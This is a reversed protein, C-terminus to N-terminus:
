GPNGAASDILFVSTRATKSHTITTISRDLHITVEIDQATFILKNEKFTHLCRIGQNPLIKM